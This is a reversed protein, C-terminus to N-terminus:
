TRSAQGGKERWGCGVAALVLTARSSPRSGWVACEIDPADPFWYMPARVRYFGRDQPAAAFRRDFEFLAAAHENALWVVHRVQLDETVPM